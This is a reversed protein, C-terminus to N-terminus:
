GDRGRIMDEYNSYGFPRLLEKTKESYLSRINEFDMDRNNKIKKVEAEWKLVQEKGYKNEMIKRYKKLRGNLIQNCRRCQINVLKEHFLGANSRGAFCHGADLYSIFYKVDCTICIGCFPIGTTDICGKVRVWRSFEDWARKKAPNKITKAM